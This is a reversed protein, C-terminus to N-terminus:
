GSIDPERPGRPQRTRGTPFGGLGSVGAGGMAARGSSQGQGYGYSQRASALLLLRRFRHYAQDKSIQLAAGIQDWSAQPDAIRAQAVARYHPSCSSGLIDLARRARAADRRGAAERRRTNASDLPIISAPRAMRRTFEAAAAPATVAVSGILNAALTLVDATTLRATARSGDRDAVALLVTDEGSGRGPRRLTTRAADGHRTSLQGTVRSCSRHLGTDTCWPACRSGSSAAATETGDRGPDRRVPM